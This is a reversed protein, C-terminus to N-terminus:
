PFAWYAIIENHSDPWTMTAREHTINRSKPLHTPVKTIAAVAGDNAFPRPGAASLAGTAVVTTAALGLFFSFGPTGSGSGSGVVGAIEGAFSGVAGGVLTTGTGKGIFWLSSNAFLATQAPTPMM